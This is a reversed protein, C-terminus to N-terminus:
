PHTQSATKGCVHWVLVVVTARRSPGLTVMVSATYRTAAQGTLM